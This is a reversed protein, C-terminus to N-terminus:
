VHARGIECLAIQFVFWARRERPSGREARYGEWFACAGVAAALALFPDTALVREIGAFHLCGVLLAAGVFGARRGFMAAGLWATALVLGVGALLCPLRVALESEGFLRISAAALWYALPPKELHPIGNYRPVLWDGTKVMAAAISAYRGETTEVLPITALGPALAAAAVVALLLLHSVRPRDM